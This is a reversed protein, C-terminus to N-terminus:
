TSCSLLSDNARQSQEQFWEQDPFWSTLERSIKMKRNSMISAILIAVETVNPKRLRSTGVSLIRLKAFRSVSRVGSAKFNGDICLYVRLETLHELRTFAPLDVLDFGTPHTQDGPTMVEDNLSLFEMKPWAESIAVIDQQTYLLPHEHGISLM